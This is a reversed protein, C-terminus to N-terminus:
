GRWCRAVARRVEDLRRPVEALGHVVTRNRAGAAGGVEWSAGWGTSDFGVMATSLLKSGGGVV